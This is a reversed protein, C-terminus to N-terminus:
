WLWWGVKSWSSKGIMVVWWGDSMMEADGDVMLEGAMGLWWDADVMSQRLIVPVAVPAVATVAPAVPPSAVGPAVRQVSLRTLRPRQPHPQSLHDAPM